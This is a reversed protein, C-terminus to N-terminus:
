QSSEEKKLPKYVFEKRAAVAGDSDLVEVKWTGDWSDLMQKSSWTRWSASKVPLEVRAMEKGGRYWVHSVSTTDVAGNIKTFCFIRDISSFFQSKVGVPAMEDIGSCFVFEAVEIGSGKEADLAHLPVLALLLAVVAFRKM